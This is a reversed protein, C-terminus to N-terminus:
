RHATRHGPRATRSAPVSSETLTTTNVPAPRAKEAPSVEGAPAVAVDDPVSKGAADVDEDIELFRQQNGDVSQADADARCDDPQRVRGEHGFSAAANDTRRAQVSQPPGRM